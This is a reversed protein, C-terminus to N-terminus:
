IKKVKKIVALKHTDDIITIGRIQHALLSPIYKVKIM